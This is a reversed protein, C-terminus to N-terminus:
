LADVKKHMLELLEKKQEQLEKIALSEVERSLNWYTIQNQKKTIEFVEDELEKLNMKNLKEERTEEKNKCCFVFSSFARPNM